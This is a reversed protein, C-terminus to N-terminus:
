QDTSPPPSSYQSIIIQHQYKTCHMTLKVLESTPHEKM